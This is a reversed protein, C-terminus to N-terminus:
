AQFLIFENISIIEHSVLEAPYLSAPFIIKKLDFSAFLDECLNTIVM